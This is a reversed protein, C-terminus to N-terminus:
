ATSPTNKPTSKERDPSPSPTIGRARRGNEPPEGATKPARHPNELTTPNPPTSGDCQDAPPRRHVPHSRIPPRAASVPAPPRSVQQVIERQCDMADTTVICGNLDLLELLKPIATIKNSKEDAKVQGLTLSQRTAWASVM